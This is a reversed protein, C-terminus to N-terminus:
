KSAAKDCGWEQASGMTVVRRGVARREGAAQEITEFSSVVIGSGCSAVGSERRKTFVSFFFGLVESHMEGKKLYPNCGM